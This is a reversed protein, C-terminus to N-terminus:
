IVYYQNSGKDIFLIYDTEDIRPVFDICLDGDVSLLLETEKLILEIVARQHFGFEIKDSFAYPIKNTPWVPGILARKKILAKGEFYDIKLFIIAFIILLKM